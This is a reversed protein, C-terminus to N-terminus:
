VKAVPIAYSTCFVNAPDFKAKLLSLKELKEAGFIDIAPALLGDYNGYQGVARMDYASGHEKVTRKVEAECMHSIRTATERVFGDQERSGWQLFLMIHCQPGRNAFSMAEHPVKQIMRNDSLEFMFTSPPLTENDILNARYSKITHMMTEMFEVSLPPVFSTGRLIRNSGWPVQKNTMANVECYPMPRTTNSVPELALLPAYFQEAKHQPGNYFLSCIFGSIPATACACTMSAEGDVKELFENIFAVVAKYRDHKIILQGAWVPYDLDHAQYVFQTTVGFCQGAGRIAWFLDPNKRSSATVIRGDALVVEASLLNDVVLGYRSSLWGYGGGLTLGGIGTNNVRGGVAALGVEGLGVDVEEWRAGGGATATKMEVDVTVRNMPTIDILIGGDTSSSGNTGHGGGGVAIQIEYKQAVKLSIAVEEASTAKVVAGAPKQAQLAWRKLSNEYDDSGPTLVTSTHLTEKLEEVASNIATHGNPHM